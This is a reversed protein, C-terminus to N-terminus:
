KVAISGSTGVTHGWRSVKATAGTGLRIGWLLLSCLCVSGQRQVLLRRARGAGGCWLVSGGPSPCPWRPAPVAPGPVPLCSPRSLTLPASPFPPPGRCHSPFPPLDPLTLPPRPFPPPGLCHSPLRPRHRARRADRAPPPPPTAASRSPRAPRVSGPGAGEPLHTAPPVAPARALRAPSLRLMAAPGPLAPSAMRAKHAPPVLRAPSGM